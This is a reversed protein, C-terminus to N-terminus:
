GGVTAVHHAWAGHRLTAAPTATGIELPRVLAPMGTWEDTTIRDVDFHTRIAAVLDRDCRCGGAYAAWVGALRGQWRGLRTGHAHVHEIFLLRGGPRLVRAVESLAGEVDPVTCLVMTSVVTDVSGTAVPLVDASAELVEAHAVHEMDVLRRRLRAAMPAVPETLLLSELGRPYHDLNLGTGAGIELVRGEARALLEARRRAMGRREGRALFGDYLGAGIREWLAAIGTAPRFTSQDTTTHTTM